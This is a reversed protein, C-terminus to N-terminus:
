KDKKQICFVYSVCNSIAAPYFISSKNMPTSYAQNIRNYSNKYTNIFM